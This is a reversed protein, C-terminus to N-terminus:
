RSLLAVVGSAGDTIAAIVAANSVNPFGDDAWEAPFGARSIMSFARADTAFRIPAALGVSIANVDPPVSLSLQAIM